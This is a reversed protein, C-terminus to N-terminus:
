DEDFDRLAYPSWGLMLLGLKGYEKNEAYDGSSSIVDMPYKIPLGSMEGTTKALRKLADVYDELDIDDEAFKVSDNLFRGMDEFVSIPPLLERIGLKYNLKQTIGWDILREMVKGLVFVGNLSGLLGARLQADKDWRFGDAVAQFFMPLLFHYIFLTKFVQGKPMRGTVLGRLATLEKRLYQNQSSQFMTFWNLFQNSQWKSQENMYSSQQTENTVREFEAMAKEKSGTKKLVSKYLAWGGLYIAGRDGLQINLMLWDRLKIGKGLNKFMDLTSVVELDKIINVGRTKMYDSAALTKIAEDPHAAFDALGALFEATSINEWYAPFSTLQKIALAPKLALVSVAYNARLKSMIKGVGDTFQKDNNAFRSVEYAIKKNMEEGFLNRIRNKVEPDGLVVNIDQLKESFNIYHNVNNIHNQLVAFAGKPKIQGGKAKRQKIASLGAYSRLDGTSVNIGSRDMSRPSYYESRGLSIGYHQEYFDNIKNYDQEYFKFLANAVAIDDETLLEDVKRLFGENFQLVDDHLMIDMTDPDQAKMWIDLLEDKTFTKSNIGWDIQFKKPLENNVYRSVSITNNKNASLADGVLKSVIEGDNFIGVRMKKEEEFISLRKNLKSQNSLSTKDFMSLIDLIGNWSFNSIGFRRIAQVTKSSSKRWNQGKGQDLTAIAENILRQRYAKKVEGTVANVLRGANYSDSIASYVEAQLSINAKGAPFSLLKNNWVLEAINGTEEGKTINDIIQMNENIKAQAEEKSLAFTERIHDFFRNVKIDTFRGVLKGNVSRPKSWELLRDIKKRIMKPTVNGNELQQRMFRKESESINEHNINNSKSFPELYKRVDTRRLEHNKIKEIMTNMDTKSMKGSDLLAMAKNIVNQPIYGSKANVLMNQSSMQMAFDLKKGGLMEDFTKRINNDLDVDLKKINGYIFSLWNKFKVFARRLLQNPAKGEMLYAEFSRAFYEHQERSINGDLSGVYRYIAALENSTEKNYSFRRMDDLFFHATEHIITSPDATSFLTIIRNAADYQGRHGSKGDQSLSNDSNNYKAPNVKGRLVAISMKHIAGSPNNAPRNQNESTVRTETPAIKIQRIKNGAFNHGGQSLPVDVYFEVSYPVGKYIVGSHYIDQGKVNPHRDDAARFGSYQAGSVVKKIEPYAINNRRERANKIARQAATKNFDVQENTAAITVTGIEEFKGILWKRLDARTKFDPVADDPITVVDVLTDDPAIQPGNERTTLQEDKSNINDNVTKEKETQYYIDNNKQSFSGRNYVSKIQNPAFAIYGKYNDSFAGRTTPEFDFIGDYGNKDAFAKIEERNRLALEGMYWAVDRPKSVYHEFHALENDLWEKRLNQNDPHKIEALTSLDSKETLKLPKKIRLYVPYVETNNYNSENYTRYEEALGENSTFFFMNEDLAYKNSFSKIGKKGGHYLVLPKGDADVVKSDGFWEYFARLGEQTKAIRKGISNTAFRDVGDIKIKEDTYTNVFDILDNININNGDSVVSKDTTLNGLADVITNKRGVKLDYASLDKGNNNEIEIDTLEKRNNAMEKVTIKVIFNEGDSQIANAYRRIKNKTGHKADNHTKVLIASNFIDAINAICEKGLIGGMNNDKRSRTTDFMKGISANSLTVNEGTTNNKLVRVGNENKSVSKDIEALVDDLSIEKSAKRDAFFRNIEVAKVVENERGVLEPNIDKREFALREADIKRIKDAIDLDDQYFPISDDLLIETETRNDKQLSLQELAQNRSLGNEEMMALREEDAESSILKQSNVAEKNKAQYADLKTQITDIDDKYIDVDAENFAQEWSDLANNNEAKENSDLASYIKTGRLETDVADLLANIEPRENSQLYGNEWAMQTADDLSLGNKNILGIASKGADMNKLDGGVDQLGGKKKLFQILSTRNDKRTKNTRNKLQEVLESIEQRNQKKNKRTDQDEQWNLAGTDSEAFRLGWRKLVENVSTKENMAVTSARAAVIRSAQEAAQPKAGAKVMQEYFDNYAENFQNRLDISLEAIECTKDIQEDTMGYKNKLLERTQATINEKGIGSPITDPDNEKDLLKNFEDLYKNEEQYFIGQLASATAAVEETDMEPYYKSVVERIRKNDARVKANYSSTGAVAGAFGVTGGITFSSFAQGLMEEMSYSELGVYNEFAMGGADQLAEETGETLFSKASQKLISKEHNIIKTAASSGIKSTSMKQLTTEIVNKTIKKVPRWNAFSYYLPELALEIGGEITGAITGYTDATKYDHGADIAKDFVEVNRMTGFGAALIGAAVQPNKTAMLAGASVAMSGAGSGLGEVFTDTSSMQKEDKISNKLNNFNNKWKARTNNIKEIAQRRKQIMEQRKEDSLDSLLAERANLSLQKDHHEEPNYNELEDIDKMLNKRGYGLYTDAMDGTFGILGRDFNKFVDEIGYGIADIANWTNHATAKLKGFFNEKPEKNEQTAIAFRIDQEDFTVPVSYLNGSDDDVVSINKPAATEWTIDDDQKSNIDEWETDENQYSEAM